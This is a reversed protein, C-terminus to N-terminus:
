KVDKKSDTSVQQVQKLEQVSQMFQPNSFIQEIIKAFDPNQMHKSVIEGIQPNKQIFQALDGSSLSELGFTDDQTAQKLEEDFAKLNDDEKYDDLISHITDQAQQIQAQPNLPTDELFIERQAPNAFLTPRTVPEPAAPALQLPIHQFSFADAQQEEQEEKQIKQHTYFEYGRVAGMFLLATIIVGILFYSVKSM